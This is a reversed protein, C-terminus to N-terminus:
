CIYNVSILMLSVITISKNQMNLSDNLQILIELIIKIIINKM